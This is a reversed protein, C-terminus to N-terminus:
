QLVKIQMQIIPLNTGTIKSQPIQIGVTTLGIPVQSRMLMPQTLMFSSLMLLKETIIKEIFDPLGHRFDNMMTKMESFTFSINSIQNWDMKGNMETAM